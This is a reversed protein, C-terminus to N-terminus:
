VYLLGGARDGLHLSQQYARAFRARARARLINKKKKVRHSKIVPFSEHKEEFKETNFIYDTKEWLVTNYFVLLVLVSM